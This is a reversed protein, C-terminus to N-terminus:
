ATNLQRLWTPGVASQTIRAIRLSLFCVFRTQTIIKWTGTGTNKIQVNLHGGFERESDALLAGFHLLHRQKTRVRILLNQKKVIEMLRKLNAAHSERLARMEERQKEGIETLRGNQEQLGALEKRMKENIAAYRGPTVDPVTARRKARDVGVKRKGNIDRTLRDVQKTLTDARQKCEEFQNAQHKHKQEQAAQREQLVRHEEELKTLEASKTQSLLTNKAALQAAQDLESSKITLKDKLITIAAQKGIMKSTMDIYSLDGDENFSENGRIKDLIGDGTEPKIGIIKSGSKTMKPSFKYGDIRKAPNSPTGATKPAHVAAKSSRVWIRDLIEAANTDGGMTATSASKFKPSPTQDSAVPLVRGRPSSIPLNQDLVDHSQNAPVTIHEASRSEVSSITASSNSVKRSLIGFSLLKQRQEEFLRDLDITVNTNNSMNSEERVRNDNTM